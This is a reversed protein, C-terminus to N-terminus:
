INKCGKFFLLDRRLLKYRSQHLDSFMSTQLVRLLKIKVHSSHFFNYRKKKSTFDTENLSESSTDEISIFQILDCQYIPDSVILNDNLFTTNIFVIM